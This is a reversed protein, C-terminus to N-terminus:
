CDGRFLAGNRWSLGPTRDDLCISGGERWESGGVKVLIHGMDSLVSM